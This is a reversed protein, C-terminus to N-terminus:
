WAQFEEEAVGIKVLLIEYDLAPLVRYGTTLGESTWELFIESLKEALVDEGGLVETTHLFGMTRAYKREVNQYPLYVSVADKSPLTSMYDKNSYYFANRQFEAAQYWPKKLTENAYEDGYLHKIYLYTSYNTLPAVWEYDTQAGGYYGWWQKAVVSM